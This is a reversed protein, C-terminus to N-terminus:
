ELLIMRQSQLGTRTELAYLYVGSPLFHGTDDCGDWILSHEGSPLLDDSLCRVMRGSTDYITLRVPGGEELKFSVATCLNFPNPHNGALLASVPPEGSISTSSTDPETKFLWYMEAGGYSATHGVFVYGGDETIQIVRCSEYSAAGYTQTWLTDGASDTRLLWIDQDGAGFSRTWGILIFGQDDTERISLGTDFNPGGYTGSWIEQGLSDTRVIQFDTLGASNSFGNGLIIYGGDATQDLSRGWDNQTGGYTNEWIINGDIDTKILWLDSDSGSYSGAMIYGHDATEQLEWSVDSMPGGFTKLWLMTGNSDLKMLYADEMGAGYSNGYGCIIYNGDFTESVWHAKDYGDGGYHNSWISDGQSDTRIVYMDLDVSGFSKTEGVVIFGGDSTQDVCNGYDIEISGFVKGWLTDGAADTRLLWLNTDDGPAGVYSMTTGVTIYGGDPLQQVCNGRDPLDGGWMQTWLTDPVQATLLSPLIFLLILKVSTESFFWKLKSQRM